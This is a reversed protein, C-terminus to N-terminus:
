YKKYQSSLQDFFEHAFKNPYSISDGCKKCSVGRRIFDEIVMEKTAGCVPCKTLVKKHSGFTYKYADEKNALLEIVHPHTTAIDNVGIVVNKM